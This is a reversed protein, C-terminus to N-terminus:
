PPRMPRKLFYAIKGYTPGTLEHLSDHQIDIGCGLKSEWKGDPLQHGAHTPTQTAPNVYLAVKEFGKELIDSECITYGLTGFAAIFADLTKEQPVGEELSPWYDGQPGPWWCQSTDNASFAICNYEPTVESKEVFTNWNLNPFDRKLLTIHGTHYGHQRAWELWAIRKDRLNGPSLVPDTGTLARLAAFWHDPERDLEDFILPLVGPGMEIIAQYAPHSCKQTLNSLHLTDNKWLATLQYFRRATPGYGKRLTAQNTRLLLTLEEIRATLADIAAKFEPSPVGLPQTEGATGQANHVADAM